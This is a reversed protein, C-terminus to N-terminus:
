TKQTYIIAKIKIYKLFEQTYSHTLRQNKRKNKPEKGGTLNCKGAKINAQKIKYRTRDYKNKDGLLM